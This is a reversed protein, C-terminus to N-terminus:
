FSPMKCASRKLLLVGGALVAAAALSEFLAFNGSGARFLSLLSASLGTLLLWVGALEGAQRRRPLWWALLVLILLSAAAEYLQVPHLRIGLPTRYWLVSILSTYTVGWPQTTPVGYDLGALFAGVSHIGISLAAAPAVCDLISLLPLGEALAYLLAAGIGFVISLPMIWVDHANTLGLVWFPHQRFAPLATLILLLRASILTSLIGLIGLSWIKNPDLSLRRAFSMAAVLAAILALATFVGYTPIAIHGFQFLRPYL